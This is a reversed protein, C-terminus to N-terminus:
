MVNSHSSFYDMFDVHACKLRLSESMFCGLAPVQEGHICECTENKREFQHFNHIQFCQHCYPQLIKLM